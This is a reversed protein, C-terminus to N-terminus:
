ILDRRKPFSVVWAKLPEQSAQEDALEMMRAAVDLLKMVVHCVEAVGCGKSQLLSLIAAMVNKDFAHNYREWATARDEVSKGDTALNYCIISGRVCAILQSVYERMQSREDVEM